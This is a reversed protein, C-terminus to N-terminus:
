VNNHYSVLNERPSLTTSTRTAVFDSQGLCLSDVGDVGSFDSSGSAISEKSVVGGNLTEVYRQGIDVGDGYHSIAFSDYVEYAVDFLFVRLKTSGDLSREVLKEYEDMMNDIDESCSVSVLADLDEDPLQYKILVPQGYVQIMKQELEDFRMNKKVSIIRTQGGVYRLMGDSPRPMIKGNYSFFFKVLRCDPNYVPNSSPSGSAHTM